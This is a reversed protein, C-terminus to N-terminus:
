DAQNIETAFEIDEETVASQEYGTKDEKGLKEGCKNCFASDKDLEAKCVPCIIKNRTKAILSKTAELEDFLSDLEDAIRAPITGKPLDSKFAKYIELGLEEYKKSISNEIGAETIKLKSVDIFSEAKKSVASAAAKANVVADDFIGM